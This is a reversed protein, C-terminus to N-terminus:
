RGGAFRAPNPSQALCASKPVTVYKEDIDFCTIYEKFSKEWAPRVYADVAARLPSYRMRSLIAPLTVAHRWQSYLRHNWLYLKGCVAGSGTAYTRKLRLAAQLGSRRGYTHRVVARPTTWVPVLAAEARLAYDVDYAAKFHSGSGLYPDFPGIREYAERRVAYNAGTWYFGPPGGQPPDSPRYIYEITRAAPCTSIRWPVGPAPLLDGAVLGVDKERKFCGGIVELWDAEVECDDDTFALIDGAARAVALNLANSKGRGDHRVVTIRTDRKSLQELVEDDAPTMGQAVVIM